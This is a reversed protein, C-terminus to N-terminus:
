GDRKLSHTSLSEDVVRFPYRNEALIKYIFEKFCAFVPYITNYKQVQEFLGYPRKKQMKKSM